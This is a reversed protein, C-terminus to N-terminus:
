NQSDVNNKMDQYKQSSEVINQILPEKTRNIIGWLANNQSQSQKEKLLKIEM